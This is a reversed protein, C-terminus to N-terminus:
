YLFGQGAASVAQLFLDPQEEHPIHGCDPIVALRANPLERALRISQATPVVRDDDGAIVLVPMTLQDLRDALGAPRSAATLEWLARDWNEVQLPKQYGAWVEASIKSPDHWASRAFDTGWRRIGRAILPGIRRMQPTNLLPRLFAPTGGGVYIAPAVLVLAQVRDPHALATLMAVTGGASHGVLIAREIGPSAKCPVADMLGVTIRVQAEPTYPNQSVGLTHSGVTRRSVRLTEPRGTLGFAPRDFAIVTSHAGDAGMEALPGMVERWSFVSAAFGHLLIWTPEGQGTAKYHIRLGEVDIFQSDPDALQAAPFTGELPRIPILFPGILLVLALVGVAILISRLSRKLPTLTKSM